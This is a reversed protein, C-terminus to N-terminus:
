RLDDDSVIPENKKEIKEPKFSPVPEEEKKLIKSASAVKAVTIEKALEPLKAVKPSPKKSTVGTKSEKAAEVIEIVGPKPEEKTELKIKTPPLAEVRVEKEEIKQNELGELAAFPVANNDKPIIGIVKDGVKAGFHRVSTELVKYSGESATLIWGADNKSLTGIVKQRKVREIQKFIKGTNNVESATGDIMKLKDGYVLLTKSAYNPPVPYKDGKETVLNEGDFLGVTGPVSVTGANLPANTPRNPLNLKGASAVPKNSGTLEALLQKSLEISAAAAALAQNILKIQLATESM